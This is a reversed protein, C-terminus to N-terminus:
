LSWPEPDQGRQSLSHSLPCTGQGRQTDVEEKPSYSKSRSSSLFLLLEWM